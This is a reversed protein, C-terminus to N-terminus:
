ECHQMSFYSAQGCTPFQFTHVQSAKAQNVEQRTGSITVSGKAGPSHMKEKSCAVKAGTTRTILKLSEGGRGLTLTPNYDIKRPCNLCAFVCCRVYVLMNYVQLSSKASTNSFQQMNVCRAAVVNVKM